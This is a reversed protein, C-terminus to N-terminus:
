EVRAELYARAQIRDPFVLDGATRRLHPGVADLLLALALYVLVLQALEPLSEAALCSYFRGDGVEVLRELGAEKSRIPNNIRLTFCHFISHTNSSNYQVFSTATQLENIKNLHNQKSEARSM